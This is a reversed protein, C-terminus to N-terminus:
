PYPWANPRCSGTGKTQQMMVPALSGSATCRRHGNGLGHGVEHNVLYGRYVALSGSFRPAGGQWRDLNLAAFTGNWCSYFGGTDLGAQACLRDVTEPRALVVRIDAGDPAVRQLRLSGSATWGRPDSLIDEALGAFAYPDVDTAPEVELSYTQLGGSRGAIAGAGGLATFGERTTTLPHRLQLTLDTDLYARGEETSHLAARVRVPLDSSTSVNDPLGESVNDPLVQFTVTLVDGDVASTTVAEHDGIWVSATSREALRVGNTRLEFPALPAEVTGTIVSGPAPEMTVEFSGTDAVARHADAVVRAPVAAEGGFVLLAGDGVSSLVDTAARPLRSGVLLLPVNDGAALVGGALADAFVSGSALAAGPPDDFFRRAILSATQYRDSGGTREVTAIKGLADAVESSVAVEGGVIEIDTVGATRLYQDTADALAHPPTLLVPWGAVAAPVAMALADAFGTGSAVVAVPAEPDALETQAVAVAVATDYRTAGHLRRVDFGLAAVADAVGAALATRGGLLYVTAGPEVHHELASEAIPDLTDSGTLLLPGGVASALGVGALADAFDDARALVAGPSRHDALATAIAASTQVRDAGALRHTTLASVTFQWARAVNIGGIRASIDARHVGPALAAMGTVRAGSAAPNVDHDVPEGDVTFVVDQADGDGVLTAGLASRGEGIVAGPAPTVDVVTGWDVAAARSTSSLGALLGIVAIM